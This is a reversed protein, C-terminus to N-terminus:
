DGARYLRARHPLPERGTLLQDLRSSNALNIPPVNRPSYPRDDLRFLADPAAPEVTIESPATQAAAGAAMVLLASLLLVATPHKRM